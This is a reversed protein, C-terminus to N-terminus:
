GLSRPPTRWLRRLRRRQPDRRDGCAIAAIMAAFTDIPRGVNRDATVIESYVGAGRELGSLVPPWRDRCSDTDYWELINGIASAVVTRRGSSKRASADTM